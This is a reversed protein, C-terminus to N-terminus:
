HGDNSFEPVRAEPLRSRSLQPRNQKIWKETFTPSPEQEPLRSRRHSFLFDSIFKYKTKSDFDSISIRDNSLSFFAVIRDSSTKEHVTYTVALKEKRYFHKCLLWVYSYSTGVLQPLAKNCFTRFCRNTKPSM